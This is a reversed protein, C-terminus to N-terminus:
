PNLVFVGTTIPMRERDLYVEVRWARFLSHQTIWTGWVPLRTEVSEWGGARDNGKREKGKHEKGKHEKGKDPKAVGAAVTFETSFRKYLSGDPSYLEIRQTHHHIGSLDRYHVVIRLDGLSEASFETGREQRGNQLLGVFNLRAEGAGLGYAALGWLLATLVVATLITRERM